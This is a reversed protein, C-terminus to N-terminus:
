DLATMKKKKRREDSEEEGVEQEQGVVVVAEVATAWVVLLMFILFSSALDLGAKTEQVKQKSTQLAYILIRNTYEKLITTKKNATQM